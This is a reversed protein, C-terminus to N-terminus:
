KGNKKEKEASAKYAITMAKVLEAHAWKRDEIKSNNCIIVLLMDVYSEPSPTLDITGVFEKKM